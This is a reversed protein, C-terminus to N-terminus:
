SRFAAYKEPIEHVVIQLRHITTIGGRRYQVCALVLDVPYRSDFM